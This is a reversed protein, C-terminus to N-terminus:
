KANLIQISIPQSSFRGGHIGNHHVVLQYEGAPPVKVYWRSIDEVFTISDGPMLAIRKAEVTEPPEIDGYVYNTENIYDANSVQRRLTESIIFNGHHKSTLEYEYLGGGETVEVLKKGSEMSTLTVEVNFASGERINTEYVKLKIDIQAMQNPEGFCFSSAFSIAILLTFIIKIKKVSRMFINM